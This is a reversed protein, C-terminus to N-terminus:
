ASIQPWSSTPIKHLPQEWCLSCRLCLCLPPITSPTNWSLSIASWLTPYLSYTAPFACTFLLWLWIMGYVIKVAAWILLPLWLLDSNFYPWLRIDLYSSCSGAEWLNPYPFSGHGQPYPGGPDHLFNPSLNTRHVSYVIFLLWYVTATPNDSNDSEWTFATTQYGSVDGWVTGM